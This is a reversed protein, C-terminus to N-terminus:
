SWSLTVAQGLTVNAPAATLDCTPPGPAPPPAAEPAAAPVAAAPIRKHCAAALVIVGLILCLGIWRPARRM